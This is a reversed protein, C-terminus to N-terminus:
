LHCIHILFLHVSAPQHTDEGKGPLM